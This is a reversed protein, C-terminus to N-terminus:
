RDNSAHAGYQAAQVSLRGNRVGHVEEEGRGNSGGKSEDTYASLACILTPRYGNDREIERIKVTAEYGDMMPMELDMFIMVYTESDRMAQDYKDVAMLGNKAWDFKIHNRKLITQM